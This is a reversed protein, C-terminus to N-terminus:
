ERTKPNVRASGTAGMGISLRGYPRDCSLQLGQRDVVVVDLVAPPRAILLAALEELIELAVVIAVHFAQTIFELPQHLLALEPPM